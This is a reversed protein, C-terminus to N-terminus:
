MKTPCSIGLLTLGNALINRAAKILLIRAQTLAEDDIVVRHKTYFYHFTTAVDKLYTTMRQPELDRACSLVTEPFQRLIKILEMEEPEKLLCLDPKAPRKSGKEKEFEIISCIRAHAYQVYYVPNEPTHKKALELDFDLHSDIKRDLLFFRAADKGVEDIIQRLTIFEGARTSMQLKEKGRYLTALQIILIKLWEKPYGLAAMAAKIRPVYGHHDPGWIDIVREFGREMKGKHYSIDPMIYTLSGDTKIVVRDKDDGFATSRFWQAGDKEYVFGKKKLLGLTKEIKGSKELRQQSTWIGFEVGFDKLDKKITDLIWSVGYSSFFRLTKTDQKVFKRDHKDILQRAIDYIYKGRYGDEPFSASEGLLEMYRAQISRGLLEIQTGVDNLYYEKKIKYGCHDLINALADGVAAQRAHALSLPGTPNASVFEIQVKKNKGQKNRGFDKGLRDILILEEVLAQKAVFFNIFGPGKIEIKEIGSIKKKSIEDQMIDVLLAAAEVPKKGIKKAIQLALSVSLDGLERKKPVDLCAEPQEDLSFDSRIKACAHALLGSVTDEIRKMPM